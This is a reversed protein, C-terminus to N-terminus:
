IKALNDIQPKWDINKSPICCNREFKVSPYFIMFYLGREFKSTMQLNQSLLPGKLSVQAMQKQHAKTITPHTDHMTLLQKM